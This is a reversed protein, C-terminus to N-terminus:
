RLAPSPPPPPHYTIQIPHRWVPGPSARILHHTLVPDERPPLTKKKPPPSPQTLSHQPRTLPSSDNKQSTRHPISHYQMYIQSVSSEFLPPLSPNSPHVRRSLITTQCDTQVLCSVHVCRPHSQSRHMASGDGMQWWGWEWSRRCSGQKRSSTSTHFYRLMPRCGCAGEWGVADHGDVDVDVDVDMRGKWGQCCRSWVVTCYLRYMAVTSGDTGM